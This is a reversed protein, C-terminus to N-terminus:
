FRRLIAVGPACPRILRRDEARPGAAPASSRPASHPPFAYSLRQTFSHRLCAPASRLELSRLAHGGEKFEQLALM